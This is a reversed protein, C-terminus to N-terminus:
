ALIQLIQLSSVEMIIKVRPAFTPAGHRTYIEGWCDEYQIGFATVLTEASGRFEDLGEPGSLDLKVAGICLDKLGRWQIDPLMDAIDLPGEVEPRRRNRSAVPVAQQSTDTQQAPASPKYRRPDKAFPKDSSAAKAAAARLSPRASAGQAAAVLCHRAQLKYHVTNCYMVHM